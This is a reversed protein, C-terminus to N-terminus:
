GIEEYGEIATKVYNEVYEDWSNYGFVDAYDSFSDSWYCWNDVGGADLAVLILETELLEELEEVSIKVYKM